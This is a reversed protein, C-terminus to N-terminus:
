LPHSEPVEEMTAEQTAGGGWGAPGMLRAAGTSRMASFGHSAEMCSAQM